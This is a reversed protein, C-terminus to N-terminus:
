AYPINEVIGRSEVCDGLCKRFNFHLRLTQLKDEPGHTKNNSGALIAMMQYPHGYYAAGIARHMSVQLLLTIVTRICKRKM